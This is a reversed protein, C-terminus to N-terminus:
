EQDDPFTSPVFHWQESEPDYLARQKCEDLDRVTGPIMQIAKAVARQRRQEDWTLVHGYTERYAFLGAHEHFRDLADLTKREVAFEINHMSEAPISQEQVASYRALQGRRRLLLQGDHAAWGVHLDIILRGGHEEIFETPDFLYAPIVHYLKGPESFYAADLMADFPSLYAAIAKGPDTNECLVKAYAPSDPRPAYNVAFYLEPTTFLKHDCAHPKCTRNALANGKAASRLKYYCGFAIV